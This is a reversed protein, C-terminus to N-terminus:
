DSFKFTRVALLMAAAVVLLLLGSSTLFDSIDGLLSSRLGSIFWQFPNFSSITQIFSPAKELSYFATSCFMLPLILLNSIMSVQSENRSLNAIFFSLLVYGINAILTVPILMLIASISVHIKFLLVGSILVLAGCSFSILTWAMAVCTIYKWLTMPTVRLLNYVGRRRNSLVSYATTVLSYFMISVAMMGTLLRSPYEPIKVFLGLGILGGIPLLISWFLMFPDRSAFKMTLRFITKM